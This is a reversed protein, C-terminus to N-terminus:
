TSCDQAYDLISKIATELPRDGVTSHPFASAVEVSLPDNTSKEVRKSIWIETPSDAKALKDNALRSM